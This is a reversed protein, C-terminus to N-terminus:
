ASTIGKRRRTMYGLGVLGIGFLAVTNPEPVNSLTEIQINDLFTTFHGNDGGTGDFTFQGSSFVVFNTPETFDASGALFASNIENGIEFMLFSFDNGNDFIEFFYTADSNYILDTTELQVGGEGLAIATPNQTVGNGIHRRIIMSNPVGSYAFYLGNQTEAFPGAHIGDSRTFLQFLGRPQPSQWEGTIHLANQENPQIEVNTRVIPRDVLKLRGNEETAASAGFSAPNVIWLAPNLVGDNFDDSLVVTANAGSVGLAMAAFVCIGLFRRGSGM